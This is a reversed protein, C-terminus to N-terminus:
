VAIFDLVADMSNKAAKGSITLSRFIDAKSLEKYNGHISYFKGGSCVVDLTSNNFSLRYMNLAGVNADVTLTKFKKHKLSSDKYFRYKTWDPSDFQCLNKIRRGNIIGKKAYVGWIEEMMHESVVIELGDINIVPNGNEDLTYEFSREERNEKECVATLAKQFKRKRESEKPTVSYTSHSWHYIYAGTTLILINPEM